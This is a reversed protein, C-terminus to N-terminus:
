NGEHQLCKINRCFNKVMGMPWSISSDGRFLFPKPPYLSGYRLLHGNWYMQVPAAVIEFTGEEILQILDERLEETLIMDADLIIAYDKSRTRQGCIYNYATLHNKYLYNEIQVFDYKNAIEITKDRSGSDLVKVEINLPQLSVLCRSINAEEDKAFIYATTSGM